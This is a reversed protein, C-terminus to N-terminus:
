KKKLESKVAFGYMLKTYQSDNVMKYQKIIKNYYLLIFQKNKM